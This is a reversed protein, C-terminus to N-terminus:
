FEGSFMRKFVKSRAALFVKSCPVEIGDNGVLYVDHFSEDQLIQLFDTTWTMATAVTKNKIKISSFHFAWGHTAAVPRYFQFPICRPNRRGKTPLREPVPHGHGLLLHPLWRGSPERVRHLSASRRHPARFTSGATAAAQGRMMM